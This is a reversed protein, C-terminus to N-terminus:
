ARRRRGRMRQIGVLMGCGSLLLGWTEPEPVVTLTLDNGTYVAEYINPGLTFQAGNPLNAFVGDIGNTTAIATFSTGLTLAQQPEGIDLYVFQGGATLNVASALLESSGSGAGGGFSNLAFLYEGDSYFSVTGTVTMVGLGLTLTNGSVTPTAPRFIASDPEGSGNGISVDSNVVGTGSFEATTGTLNAVSVGSTGELSGSLVLNGSSVTTPGTYTSNSAIVLAGGGVSDQVSLSGGSSSLPTAFTVVQGATDINYQQNASTSFRGSYDFQNASSYQLTGGTLVISGPNSAASDGLPGSAGPNAASGVNLIGNELTTVGSYTSEGSLTEKGTGVKTFAGIGGLNGSYTNTSNNGGVSLTVAGGGTDALSDAGTGSLSGVNVTGIGSTFTMGNTMDIIVTTNQAANVNGLQMICSAITTPGSYTNAANFVLSSASGNGELLLTEGGGNDVIPGNITGQHGDAGLETNGLLTITGSTTATGYRIQGFTEGIAGGDLNINAAIPAGNQFLTAGSLVNITASGSIAQGAVQALQLKGGTPGINLTGTFGSLNSNSTTNAGGTGITNYNITGPGSITNGVMLTSFEVDLAGNQAIYVSSTGLPTMTEATATIILTGSTITTPGAYTNSASLTLTGPGIETVGTVNSGIASSILASGSGSNTILGINNVPNTSVTIGNAIASNNELTLSGTGVVGGSATLLQTGGGNENLLTTGATGSNVTLPTAGITLPSTQSDEVISTVNSGVGGDITVAGSGASNNTVAGNNNVSNGSFTITGNGSSQSQLFLNATGTVGGTLTLSGADSSIVSDAALVIPNSSSNGGSVSELVGTANAAGSGSLTISQTGTSAIGGQVQATAGSLVTIASDVGFAAGNQYNVIGANLTTAGTFTNNTEIIVTGTGDKVLTGAGAIGYTGSSTLTYTLSNNDFTTIAPVVNASLINVTGTVASDDFLVMDDTMFDTLSGSFILEWNHLPGTPGVVWNDSDFGTWKPSDGLVTMVIDDGVIGFSGSQRPGLGAIAGLAIDASGIGALSGFSALDYTTNNAWAPATADITVLGSNNVAGTTLAGTVILDPTTANVALGTNSLDITAAGNFTLAGITLMSSSNENEIVNGASDAVVVSNIVTTGEVTGQTLTVTPSVAVSSAQIFTAASGSVTIGSSNNVSGAGSLILEGNQVLTTGSYSNAGNLTLSGSGHQTVGGTGGIGGATFDTGQVVANSRNFQLTGDDVITSAIPLAGTTGGNGLRLAGSNITTTGGYTNSATLVVIGAGATTLSNAGGIVGTLTLSGADASITTNSDLAIPGAYSNSGSVNELAGTANAAGAGSLSLLQSGGAINGQVQITANSGTAITIPSDTGFATGNQYNVIGSNITTAGTFTNPAEITVKGTGSVNMTATGAIGFGGGSILVYNLANNVFNVTTPTVNAASINVTGSTATDGFFVDDGQIYNTPSGASILKWNDNPGTSGVVWDQNDLGTWEPNDGSITLIISTGTFGLLASQRVGLDAITGQIINASGMGALGVFSVLDYTTGNVWQGTPTANVSVLGATNIAGTALAGTVNIGPVSAVGSDNINVTGAGNFILNGITLTATTGYGNQVINGAADAVVVSDITGTGDVIGQSLTVPPGVPVGSAQVFKANSANVSIGAGNISGNGSLLLTGAQVVTSGAYTSSGTLNVIGTGTTTLVYGIGGDGIAGSLTLEGSNASITSNANLTISGAYSNAGNVSELAGTANSAGTGSLAMASAGGTIGGQVQATAGPAITIASFGGFATGNQYNLIGQNINTAGTYNDTGELVMTGLGTKTLGASAKAFDSSSNELFTDIILDGGVAGTQGVNFTTGTTGTLNVGITPIDSSIVSASSGAVTVTGLLQYEQYTLNGAPYSGTVTAGNLFLNGLPNYNNTFLTGSNITISPFNVYGTGQGSGFSNNQGLYLMAGPNVTITRGGVAESGYVSDVGGVSTASTTNELIGANVTISGTFTSASGTLIQTGSGTKILSLAGGGTNEIIGSFTGGGGNDGITLTGSTASTNNVFVGSTNAVGNTILAGVTDSFGNLNFTVAGTGASAATFTMNGAATGGNPGFQNNAGDQVVLRDSGGNSEIITGGTWNNANATTNDLVFTTTGAGNTVQTDFDLTAPGTVQNSFTIVGAALLLSVRDGPSSTVPSGQLTLTGSLLQANNNCKISGINGSDGVGPSIFINNPQSSELYLSAGGAVYIPGTGFIGFENNGQLYGEDIYTGGSYSDLAAGQSANNFYMSGPGVKIVTVVGGAANNEIRANMEFQNATNGAVSNDGFVLTSPSSTTGATVANGGTATLTFVQHTTGGTIYIGGVSNAAGAGLVMTGTVTLVDTGTSQIATLTNIYTIGGSTSGVATYNTTSPSGIAPSDTLLVNSDPGAQTSIEGGGALSVYSSSGLAVIQGNTSTALPLLALANTTSSNEILGAGNLSAVLGTNPDQALAAPGSTTIDGSGSFLAAGGTNPTLGGNLAIQGGASDVFTYIGWDLTIPVNITQISASNNVIGPTASQTPTFIKGSLIVGTGDLTFAGATANFYIGDFPMVSSFNNNNILGNTGAFVLTDFPSPAANAADSWNTATAWNTDGTGNNDTWTDTASHARALALLAIIILCFARPLHPCKHTFLGSPIPKPFM